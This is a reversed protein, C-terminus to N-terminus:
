GTLDIANNLVARISEVLPLDLLDQSSVWDAQDHEDSLTLTGSVVNATLVVFIIRIPGDPLTLETQASGALALVEITFGTEELTERQLAIDLAEGADPKGGPLEWCGPWARSSASRRLMLVRGKADRILARPSFGIRM